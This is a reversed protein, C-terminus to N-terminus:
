AGSLTRDPCHHPSCPVFAQMVLDDVSVLIVELSCCDEYSNLDGSARTRRTLGASASADM